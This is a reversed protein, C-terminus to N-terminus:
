TCNSQLEADPEFNNQRANELDQCGEKTKGTDFYVRARDAYYSGLERIKESVELDESKISAKFETLQNIASSIENLAKDKDGAGMLLLFKRYHYEWKESTLNIINDYEKLTENYKKQTFLLSAKQEFYNEIYPNLQIAKEINAFSKDNDNSKEYEISLLYEVIGSTKGKLNELKKIVASSDYFAVTLYTFNQILLKYRHANASVKVLEVHLSDPHSKAVSDFSFTFLRSPDSTPKLDRLVETVEFFEKLAEVRYDTKSKTKPESQCSILILLLITLRTPTM